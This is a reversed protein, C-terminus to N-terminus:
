ILARHWADLHQPRNAGTLQEARDLGDVFRRARRVTKRAVGRADKGHLSAQLEGASMLYHLGAVEASYGEAELELAFPNAETVHGDSDALREHEGYELTHLVTPEFFRPVAPPRQQGKRGAIVQQKAFAQEPWSQGTSFGSAGLASVVWGTLGTNPLFLVKGEDRCLSAIERYGDLVATDLLQGYRTKILPWYFRLYWHRESREVIEELLLDRLSAEALWRHDLSLNVMMPADQAYSRSEAVFEMQAELAKEPKVDHVWGSASLLVTAGADRQAELVSKTWSATPKVPLAELCPWKDAAKKPDADEFKSDPVNHLEPDVLRLPVASQDSMYKAAGQPSSHTMRIATGIGLNGGWLGHLGDFVEGLRGSNTYSKHVILTPRQGNLIKRLSAGKRETAEPVSGSSTADKM